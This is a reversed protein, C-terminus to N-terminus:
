KKATKVFLDKIRSRQKTSKSDRQLESPINKGRSWSKIVCSKFRRTQQHSSKTQVMTKLSSDLKTESQM